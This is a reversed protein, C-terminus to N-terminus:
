RSGDKYYIFFVFLWFVYYIKRIVLGVHFIRNIANFNDGFIEQLIETPNFQLEIIIPVNIQLENILQKKKDGQHNDVFIIVIIFHSIKKSGLLINIHTKNLESLRCKEIYMVTHQNKVFNKMLIERPNNVNIFYIDTYDIFGHLLYENIFFSKGVEKESWLLLVPKKTNIKNNDMEICCNLWAAADDRWDNFKFDIKPFVAKIFNKKRFDNIYKKIKANSKPNRIISFNEMVELDIHYNFRAFKYNNFDNSYCIYKM